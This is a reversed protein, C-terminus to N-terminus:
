NSSAFYLAHTAWCLRACFFLCVLFTIQRRVFAKNHIKLIKGNKLIKQWSKWNYICTPERPGSGVPSPPTDTHTNDSIAQVSYWPPVSAPAPSLRAKVRVSVPHNLHYLTIWPSEGSSIRILPCDGGQSCGGGVVLSLWWQLQLKQKLCYLIRLHQLLLSILSILCTLLLIYWVRWTGCPPWIYREPYQIIGSCAYKEQTSRAITTM